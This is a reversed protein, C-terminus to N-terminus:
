RHDAAFTTRRIPPPSVMGAREPREKLGAALIDAFKVIRMDEKYREPFKYRLLYRLDTVCMGIMEGMIRVFPDKTPWAGAIDLFHQRQRNHEDIKPLM